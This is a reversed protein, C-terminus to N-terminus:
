AGDELVSEAEPEDNDDGLLADGVIGAEEDIVPESFIETLIGM